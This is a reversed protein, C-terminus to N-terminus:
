DIIVGQGLSRIAYEGSPMQLDGVFFPFPVDVTIGKMSTQSLGVGAFVLATVVGSFLKTM